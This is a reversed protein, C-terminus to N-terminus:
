QKTEMAQMIYQRVNLPVEKSGLVQKMTEVFDLGSERLENLGQLFDTLELREGVSEATAVDEIVDKSTDLLYPQIKGSKYLLGIQPKYSIEDSKRRMMTGCNFVTTNGIRTMFGKHNDGIVAVDWGKLSERMMGVRSDPNAGPYCFGDMWVYRHLVAINLLGNPNIPTLTGDWDVAKVLCDMDNRILDEAHSVHGVRLLTGYASREMEDMSHYPLDHQGPITYLRTPLERLAFNILEPPSNWRDFIDGACIVDANFHERVKEIERLPRAMAEFWCPEKARAVPPHLSLHLDSCLIAVVYDEDFDPNGARM